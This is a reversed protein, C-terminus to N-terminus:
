KDKKGFISFHVYRKPHLRLDNLLSDSSILNSNLNNYLQNDNLLLGLSSNPSELKQMTTAVSQNLTATVEQVGALTNNVNTMTGEYDIKELKETLLQLNKTTPELNAAMNSVPGAMLTNLNSTTTKLAQTIQATNELTQQLAPTALLTNVSTLISDIKTMLAQLGPMMQGLQDLAGLSPGGPITDGPSICLPSDGLVISMTVGGLMQADLKGYSGESIRINEKVEVAVYVNGPNDYDYNISRVNGIPYGNVYVPNSEALGSVDPFAVYYTNNDQFLSVGKLFNLGYILLIVAVVVTVGIKIEKTMIEKAM